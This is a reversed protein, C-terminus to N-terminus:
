QVVLFSSFGQERFRKQADRAAAETAFPGTLLKYRNDERLLFLPSLIQTQQEKLMKQAGDIQSFNALQLFYRNTQQTEDSTDLKKQNSGRPINVAASEPKLVISPTVSKELLSASSVVNVALPPQSESLSEKSRNSLKTESPKSSNPKIRQAADKKAQDLDDGLIRRIRVRASGQSVFGLKVAAAYSVDIIRGKHFPGRDNIKVIVKKDNALHTIEVYSPIPLTPHAATMAYPDFPEGSSTKRGHFQKGYWSAIGEQEFARDDTFPIYTKGVASYRRNFHKNPIPASQPQADPILAASAESLALDPPGDDQYYGGPKTSDINLPLNNQTNRSAIFQANSGTKQPHFKQKSKVSSPAACANLFVSVALIIRIFFRCVTDVFM